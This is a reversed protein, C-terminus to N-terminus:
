KTRKSDIVFCNMIFCPVLGILDGIEIMLLYCYAEIISLLNDKPLFLLYVHIYLFEGIVRVIEMLYASNLWFWWKIMIKNRIGQKRKLYLKFYKDKILPIGHHTLHRVLMPPPALLVGLCSAGLSFLLTCGVCCCASWVSGSWFWPTDTEMLGGEPYSSSGKPDRLSESVGLEGASPYRLSRTLPPMRSGRCSFVLSATLPAPITYFM